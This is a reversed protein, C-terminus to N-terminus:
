CAMTGTQGTDWFTRFWIELILVAMLQKNDILESSRMHSFRAVAEKNFIGRSTFRQSTLNDRVYDSFEDGFVREIPFYFARKPAKATQSPLLRAVAKRLLYKQVTGRIKFREPLGCCFEVLRHDLFPVRAELSNAMSLHDQKILTNDPLWNELDYVLLKNLFGGQEALAADMRSQLGNDDAAQRFDDSYLNKREQQTFLSALVLFCQAPSENSLATLYNSVREKGKSGLKAPYRFLLNLCTSPTHRITYHVAAQLPKPLARRYLEGFRMSLQHVYGALIEDAGEGSLVVKVHKSTEQALLYTPIIIADGIPSDMHRMIRPLLDYDQKGIILEHHDTGFHDAIRRAQSAEDAEGGFGGVTFTKVPTSSMEAMLGVISSSDIGGSLYAGLPVDSMLRLRVSDKLMEFLRDESAKLSQRPEEQLRVSWYREIRTKGNKFSLVSAPPLKEIGAFMTMNAPIYRLTLYCDLAIRNIVRPTKEWLLLSKLESSFILTENISYYYVPRIGLRDRALLLSQKGDDWIAFAFEGNLEEVCREGMEEYLHVIVETDTQTRFIHGRKELRRRLELYNYIEGNLVIAITNDENFIPQKGTELDIISLRRHGLGVRNGLYFGDDDPGRHRLAHTMRQLLAEDVFGVFGCIGCM